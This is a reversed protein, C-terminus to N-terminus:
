YEDDYYWGDDEYDYDFECSYDSGSGKLEPVIIDIGLDECINPGFGDIYATSLDKDYGLYELLIGVAEELSMKEDLRNEASVLGINTTKNIMDTIIDDEEVFMHFSFGNIIYYAAYEEYYEMEHYEVPLYDSVSLVCDKLVYLSDRLKEYFSSINTRFDKLKDITDYNREIVEKEEKVLDQTYVIEEIASESLGYAAMEAETTDVGLWSSANQCLMVDESTMSYKDIRLNLITDLDYVKYKQEEDNLWKWYDEFGYISDPYVFTIPFELGTDKLYRLEQETLEEISKGESLFSHIKRLVNKRLDRYEKAAKNITYLAHTQELTLPRKEVRTMTTKKTMMSNVGKTTIINPTTICKKKNM